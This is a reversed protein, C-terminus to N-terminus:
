SFSNIISFFDSQLKSQNYFLNYQRKLEAGKTRAQALDAMVLDLTNSLTQTDVDFLVYMSNRDFLEFVAESKATIYPKSFYAAEFLKHPITNRLRPSTSLQGFTALCNRMAYSITSESQFGELVLTNNPNFRLGRLQDTLIVFKYNKKTYWSLECILGLGSESVNKGRFLFFSESSLVKLRPDTEAESMKQFRQENLGTPLYRTKLKSVGFIKYIYDRQRESELLILKALHLSASDICL